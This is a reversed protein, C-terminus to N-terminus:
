RVVLEVPVGGNVASGRGAPKAQIALFQATGNMRVVVEHATPSSRVTAAIEM